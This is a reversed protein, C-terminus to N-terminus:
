PHSPRLHLGDGGATQSLGAPRQAPCLQGGGGAAEHCFRAPAALISAGHDQGFNRWVPCQHGPQARGPQFRGHRGPYGDFLPHRAGRGGPSDVPHAPHWRGGAGRCLAFLAGDYVTVRGGGCGFGGGHPHHGPARGHRGGGGFIGGVERVCRGFLGSGRAPIRHGTGHRIPWLLGRGLGPDGRRAKQHCKGGGGGGGQWRQGPEGSDVAQARREM